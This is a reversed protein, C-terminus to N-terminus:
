LAVPLSDEPAYIENSLRIQTINDTNDHSLHSNWGLLPQYDDNDVLQVSPVESDSLSLNIDFDLESGVSFAIFSKLADLKKSGPSLDMFQDYPMPAIVVSFKNQIQFSSGGLVANVGLSNNLGQPVEPGPLRTQVDEPLDQWQGQFQDICVELDFYAKIMGKLADASCIQRSLSGAFGAIASDPIPLRYSLESTGLGCLSLLADTFLDNRQGGQQHNREYNVPLQYKHWAQYYLSIARHNFLDLYDKLAHNRNKLEKLVVESLYYPMVGQSGTLGMFNVDLQWQKQPRNSDGCDDTDSMQIRDIDAAHFSLKPPSKFRVVERNPLSNQAVPDTAFQHEGPDLASVRELLRVAQFFDYRQPEQTLQEVVALSKRRRTTVM